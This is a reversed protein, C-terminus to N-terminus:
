AIRVNQNTKNGIGRSHAHHLLEVLNTKEEKFKLTAKLRSDAGINKSFVPGFINL